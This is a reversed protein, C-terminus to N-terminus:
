SFLELLFDWFDFGTKPSKLNAAGSGDVKYWAVPSLSTFTATITGDGAVAPLYEIEGNHKVHLVVIKDGAKVQEAINGDTFTISVGKSIDIGEQIVLDLTGAALVNKVGLSPAYMNMIKVLEKPNEGVWDKWLKLTNIAAQVEPVDSNHISGVSVGVEQGGVTGVSPNEPSYEETEEEEEEVEVDAEFPSKAEFKYVDELDQVYQNLDRIWTYSLGGDDTCWSCLGGDNAADNGSVDVCPTGIKYYIMEEGRVKVEFASKDLMNLRYIHVNAGYESKTVMYDSYSTVAKSKDSGYFTPYTSENLPLNNDWDYVYAYVYGDNNMIECDMLGVLSKNVYPSAWNSDFIVNGEADFMMQVYYGEPIDSQLVGTVEVRASKYEANLKKNAATIPLVLVAAELTRNDAPCLAAKWGTVDLSEAIEYKPYYAISVESGAKSSEYRNFESFNVEDEHFAQVTSMNGTATAIALMFMLAAMFASIKKM